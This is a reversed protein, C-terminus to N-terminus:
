AMRGVGLTSKGVARLSTAGNLSMKGAADQPANITFIPLRKMAETAARSVGPDEIVFFEDLPPQRFPPVRKNQKAHRSRGCGRLRGDQRLEVM